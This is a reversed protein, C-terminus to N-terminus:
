PNITPSTPHELERIRGRLTNLLRQVDESPRALIIDMDEQKIHTFPSQMEADAIRARIRNFVYGYGRSYEKRLEQEIIRNMTDNTVLILPDGCKEKSWYVKM